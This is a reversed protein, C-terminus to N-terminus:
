FEIEELGVLESIDNIQTTQETLAFLFGISERLAGLQHSLRNIHKITITHTESDICSNCIEVVSNCQSQLRVRLNDFDIESEPM